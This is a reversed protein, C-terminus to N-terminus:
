KKKAPAAAEVAAPVHTKIKKPRRANGYSKRFIKGKKTRRDGRGMREGNTTLTVRRQFDAQFIAIRAIRIL